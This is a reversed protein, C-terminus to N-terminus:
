AARGNKWGVAPAIEVLARGPRMTHRLAEARSTAHCYITHPEPDAGNTYICCWIPREDKWRELIMRCAFGCGCRVEPRIRGEQDIQHTVTGAGGGPHVVVRLRVADETAVFIAKGCRPCGVVPAVPPSLGPGRVASWTGGQVHTAGNRDKTWTARPLVITRTIAIAAPGASRTM